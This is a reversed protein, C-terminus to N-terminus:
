KAFEFHFFCIQRFAIKPSLHRGLDLSLVRSKHACTEADFWAM